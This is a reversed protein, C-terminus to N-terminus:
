RHHDHHNGQDNRIFDATKFFAQELQTKLTADPVVEELAKRMCLMWADREAPGIPFAAHKMRLRPHGREASYQKPGGMWEVLFNVLVQKVPALDAPHMARIGQAASQTDMHFYFRDVLATIAEVGGIRTFHPNTPHAAQGAAPSAIESPKIM